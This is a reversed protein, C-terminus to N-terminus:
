RPKSQLDKSGFWGRQKEETAAPARECEDKSQSQGKGTYDSRGHSFFNRRQKKGQIEGEVTSTSSWSVADAPAAQGLQEEKDGLMPGSKELAAVIAAKEEEGPKDFSWRRGDGVGGKLLDTSAHQSLNQLSVSLPLSKQLVGLGLSGAPKGSGPAQPQVSYSHSGNVCVTPQPM